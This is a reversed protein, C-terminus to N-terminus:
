RALLRAALEATTEVHAYRITPGVPSPLVLPTLRAKAAQVRVVTSLQAERIRAAEAEALAILNDAEFRRAADDFVNSM